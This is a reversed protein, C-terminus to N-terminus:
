RSPALGPVPRRSREFPREATPKASRRIAGRDGVTPENASIQISRPKVLVWLPLLGTMKAPTKETTM